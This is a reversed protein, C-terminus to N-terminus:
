NTTSSPKNSVSQVDITITQPLNEWIFVGIENTGGGNYVLSKFTYSGFMFIFYRKYFFPRIDYFATM